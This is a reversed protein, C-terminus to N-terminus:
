HSVFFLERGIRTPIKTKRTWLLWQACEVREMDVVSHFFTSVDLHFKMVNLFADLRLPNIERQEVQPINPLMSGHFRGGGAVRWWGRTRISSQPSEAGMPGVGAAKEEEGADLEGCLDNITM